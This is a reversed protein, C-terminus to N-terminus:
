QGQALGSQQGFGNGYTRFAADDPFEEGSVPYPYFYDDM